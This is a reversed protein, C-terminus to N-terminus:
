LELESWGNPRGKAGDSRPEPQMSAVMTGLFAGSAALVALGFLAEGLERRAIDQRGDRVLGVAIPVLVFVAAGALSFSRVRWPLGRGQARGFHVLSGIALGFFPGCALGLIAGSVAAYWSGSLFVFPLALAFGYATVVATGFATWCALSLILTALPRRFHPDRM